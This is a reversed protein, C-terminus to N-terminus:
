LIFNMRAHYLLIRVKARREPCNQLHGAVAATEALYDVDLAVCDANIEVLIFLTRRTRIRDLRPRGFLYVGLYPFHAAQM